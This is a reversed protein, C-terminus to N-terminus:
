LRLGERSFQRKNFGFRTNVRKILSVNKLRTKRGM